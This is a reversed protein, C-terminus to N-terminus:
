LSVSYPAATTRFHSMQSLFAGPAVFIITLIFYRFTITPENPDDTFSVVRRVYPPISSIRPDDEPIDEEQGNENTITYLREKNSEADKSEIDVNFTDEKGWSTEFPVMPVNAEATIVKADSETIRDSHKEGSESAM